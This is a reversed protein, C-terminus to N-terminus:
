FLEFHFLDFSFRNSACGAPFPALRLQSSELNKSLIERRKLRGGSKERSGSVRGIRGVKGVGSERSGVRGVRGVRGKDPDGSRGIERSGVKGVKGAEGTKGMKEGSERRVGRKAARQRGLTERHSSSSDRSYPSRVSSAGTEIGARRGTAALLSPATMTNRTM